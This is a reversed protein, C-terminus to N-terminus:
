AKNNLYDRACWIAHGLGLPESQVVEIIKEKSIIYKSILSYLYDNKVKLIEELNRNGKFHDTISQKESSIIFIFREIGSNIAEEVAYEILPRNLVPLLEKPVSKTVPLFRSGIGAVPFVVTDIENVYSM